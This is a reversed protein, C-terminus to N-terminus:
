AQKLELAVWVWPCLSFLGWDPSGSMKGRWRGQRGEGDRLDGQESGQREERRRQATLDVRSQLLERELVNPTWSGRSRERWMLIPSPAGIPDYHPRHKYCWRGLACYTCFDWSVLSISALSGKQM